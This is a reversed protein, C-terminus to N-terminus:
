ELYAYEKVWLKPYASKSFKLAKKDNEYPSIKKSNKVYISEYLDSDNQVKQIGNVKSIEYLSMVTNNWIQRYGEDSGTPCKTKVDRYRYTFNAPFSSFAMNLCPKALDLKINTLPLQTPKSDFNIYTGNVFSVNSAM